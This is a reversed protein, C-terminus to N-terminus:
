TFLQPQTPVPTPDPKKTAPLEETLKLDLRDWNIYPVSYPSRKLKQARTQEGKTLAKRVHVCVSKRANPDGAKAAEYQGKNIRVRTSWDLYNAELIVSERKPSTEV